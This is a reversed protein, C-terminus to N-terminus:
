KKKPIAHQINLLKDGVRKLERKIHKKELERAHSRSRAGDLHEVVMLTSPEAHFADYVTRGAQTAHRHARKCIGEGTHGVYTKHGNSGVVTIRYVSFAPTKAPENIIVVRDKHKAKKM